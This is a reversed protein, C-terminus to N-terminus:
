GELRPLMLPTGRRVSLPNDVGNVEAITRWKNADGYVRYAISQLSDGDKVMHVGLGAEARTTPNQAKVESTEAETLAMNVDARIPDGNPQFLKYAVTLSTIVAKFTVNRGWAFTVFPPAASAAGGSSGSPTGMLGFLKEVIDRITGGKVLSADLLLGNLTLTRPNGGGYQGKPKDAGIVPKFTWANTKAISYERPNFLVPIIEGGDVRLEAKKFGTPTAM